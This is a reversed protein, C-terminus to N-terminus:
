GSISMRNKHFTRFPSRCCVRLRTKGKKTLWHSNTNANAACSLWAGLSVMPHSEGAAALLEPRSLAIHLPEVREIHPSQITQEDSGNNSITDYVTRSNCADHFGFSKETM